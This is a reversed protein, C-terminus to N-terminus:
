HEKFRKLIVSVHAFIPIQTKMDWWVYKDLEHGKLVPEGDAEILCVKHKSLSGEFDCNKLRKVSTVHLGLEEHLERAAASVTPEGDHIGGGPLSFKHRGRDRVLLVKGHRILLATGRQRM